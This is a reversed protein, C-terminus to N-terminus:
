LMFVGGESLKEIEETTLGNIFGVIRFGDCLGLKKNWGASPAKVPAGKVWEKVGNEIWIGTGYENGIVFRNREEM